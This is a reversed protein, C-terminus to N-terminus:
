ANKESFGRFCNSVLSNLFTGTLGCGCPLSTVFTM